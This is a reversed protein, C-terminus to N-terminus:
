SILILQVNSKDIKIPTKDYILIFDVAIRFFNNYRINMILNRVAYLFYNALNIERM